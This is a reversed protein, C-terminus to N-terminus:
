FTSLVRALARKAMFLISTVTLYVSGLKLECSIPDL